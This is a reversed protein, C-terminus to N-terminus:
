HKGQLKRAIRSALRGTHVMPNTHSGFIRSQTMVKLFEAPGHFEEIEVYARGVEALSHADSGAGSPLHHRGAFRRPLALNQLPLSRANFVEVIDIDSAIRELTKSQLASSRYRDFPHPVCVLGGQARIARLAAEVPIGSPITEKLFMGMIEGEPTLVEEAVIVQFPAIKQLELAGEVTGHDCVAICGLGMQEVREILTDLRTACDGSYKTHIHLDAKIM